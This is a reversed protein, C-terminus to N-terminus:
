SILLVPLNKRADMENKAKSRALSILRRLAPNDNNPSWIASFPLIEGSIPTYSVGPIQVATTAESTVTLGRGLAVLRLLNDRGVYQREIEPHRGLEALRQILYDHIEQGPAVHTVIFSEGALDAWEIEEKDALRHEDPLVAFVRELWLPAIECGAWISTGTVFAVDLRLDRIAAVHDAPDGDVFEMRVKKHRKAYDCLLESLFGSALSSFIGVHVVGEEGRGVTAISRTGEHIIRLGHRVRRLFREGAYTLSVGGSHRHFLSVGVLNELDHIRRSIASQNVGLAVAAKRFSGQEAVVVFCCLHRFEISM